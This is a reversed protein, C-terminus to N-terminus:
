DEAVTSSITNKNKSTSSISVKPVEAGDANAANFRLFPIVKDKSINPSADEGEVESSLQDEFNDSISRSLITDRSVAIVGFEQIV